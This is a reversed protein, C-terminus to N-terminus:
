GLRSPSPAYVCRCGYPHSCVCTPLEPAQDVPYVKNALAKCAECSDDGSDLIQVFELLSTRKWEEINVKNIAFSALLRADSQTCEDYPFLGCLRRSPASGLLYDLSAYMRSAELASEPRNALVEPASSWIADLISTDRGTNWDGWSCGLGPPFVQRSNYEARRESARLFLKNAVLALIDDELKEKESKKKERYNNILVSGKETVGWRPGVPLMSIAADRDAEILRDILDSKRGTKKCGLSGLMKKLSAVTVLGDMLTKLHLSLELQEILGDKKYQFVLQSPLANLASTWGDDSDYSVIEEASMACSQFKQLFMIRAEDVIQTSDSRAYVSTDVRVLLEDSQGEPDKTEGWNPPRPPLPPPEDFPTM